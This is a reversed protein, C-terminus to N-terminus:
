NANWNVSDHTDGAQLDARDRGSVRTVLKWILGFIDEWEIGALDVYFIQTGDQGEAALLMAIAAVPEELILSGQILMQLVRLHMLRSNERRWLNLGCHLRPFIDNWAWM